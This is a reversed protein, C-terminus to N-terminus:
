GQGAMKPGGIVYDLPVFINEGQTPGNQFPVNLPFHRRGIQVGPTSTPILACTIGIDDEDGLLHDPDHLKFALGLVTAIPALTIYRKNWTLRMGLVQEGQWEGYCVIGVDPISGADSGAEPSTLAVCPIEQGRALRPLYHDKQDETGYHQLLEGPGLSNPVGVTIALISSVGALKQLVQSQAYSSFELGGYQKKIIMAFFRHQKLFAWLEPPLDALEHTIQFDNAIRCAEEVPGDLFAQEEETLTPQPYNHLMKWDPAGRFMEGEWWTIGANIAEKETNSMAPMVKKFVRLAPSSLAKQRLATVVLPALVVLLPLLLWYSWLGGAGMLAFYAVLLAASFPLNVRHYFLAGVMILLVLISVAVM